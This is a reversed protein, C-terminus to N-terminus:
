ILNRIEIKDRQAIMKFANILDKNILCVQKNTERNYVEKGCLMNSKKFLLPLKSNPIGYCEITRKIKQEPLKNNAVLELINEMDEVEFGAKKLYGISNVGIIGELLYDSMKKTIKFKEGGNLLYLEVTIIFRGYDSKYGSLLIHHKSIYKHINYFNILFFFMQDDFSECSANIIEDYNLELDGKENYIIWKYLVFTLYINGSRIAKLLENQIDMRKYQLLLEVIQPSQSCLLFQENDDIFQPKNNLLLKIVNINRYMAHINSDLCKESVGKDWIKQLVYYPENYMAMQFNIDNNPNNYENEIIKNYHKRLM